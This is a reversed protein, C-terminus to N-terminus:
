VVRTAVPTYGRARLFNWAYAEADNNVKATEAQKEFQSTKTAPEAIKEDSSTTEIQSDAKTIVEITKPKAVNEVAKIMRSAISGEDEVTNEIEKPAAPVETVTPEIPKASESISKSGLSRISDMARTAISEQSSEEIETVTKSNEAFRDGYKTLGHLTLYTLGFIAVCALATIAFSKSSEILSTEQAELARASVNGARQYAYEQNYVNYHASM